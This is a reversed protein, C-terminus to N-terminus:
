SPDHRSLPFRRRAARATREPGVRAGGLARTHRFARQAAGHLGEPRSRQEELRPPPVITAKRVLALQASVSGKQAMLVALVEDDYGLALYLAQRARREARRMAFIAATAGIGLALGCSLFLWLLM